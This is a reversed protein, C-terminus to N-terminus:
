QRRNISCTKGPPPNAGTKIAQGAQRSKALGSQALRREEQTFNFLDYLDMVPATIEPKVEKEEKKVPQPEPIAEFVSQEHLAEAIPEPQPTPISKVSEQVSPRTPHQVTQRVGQVETGNYLELNLRKAFDKSLIKRIDAAIGPVGGEHTYVLAPKGYINTDVAEQTRIIREPHSSIYSNAVIGSDQWEQTSALLHDEPTLGQKKMNKQLIILDSGVETNASDTFLNSPLRIASVLDAQKLMQARMAFNDRGDLVGQSTIFAVIGGDRVADLGKLFFYNHIAKTASRRGYEKSRSYEPDFVAMDGFPINSTVVDFYNTFPREIREFGEARIKHGPYLHSLLKGTLLDKDFAMVEAKPAHVGFASIFVGQGASPDLLRNPTVGQEHLTDAIASVIEPPTYFATLVSSKISDMYRKYEKEDTSNDRVLRHLEVTMPFLERDSKAWHVSDMISGAPNLIFKLGGFGCYRSLIEREQPTAGRGQKELTFVTRLAEINNRLKAKRNFAM